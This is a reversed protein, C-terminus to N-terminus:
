AGVHVCASKIYYHPFTQVGIEKVGQSIVALSHSMGQGPLYAINPLFSFKSPCVIGCPFSFKSGTTTSHGFPVCLPKIINDRGGKRPIESKLIISIKNIVTSKPSYM